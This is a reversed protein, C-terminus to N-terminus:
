CCQVSHWEIRKKPQNDKRGQSRRVSRLAKENTAPTKSQGTVEDYIRAETRKRSDMKFYINGKGVEAKNM